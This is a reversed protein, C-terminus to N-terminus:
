GEFGLRKAYDGGIKDAIKRLDRLAADCYDTLAAYVLSVFPDSSGGKAVVRHDRAAQATRKLVYNTQLDFVDEMSDVHIVPMFNTAREMEFYTDGNLGKGVVIVFGIRNRAPRMVSSAWRSMMRYYEDDTLVLIREPDGPDDIDLPDDENDIVPGIGSRWLYLDRLYNESLLEPNSISLLTKPLRTSANNRKSYPWTTDVAKLADLKIVTNPVKTGVRELFLDYRELLDEDTMFIESTDYQIGFLAPDMMRLMSQIRFAPMASHAGKSYEASTIICKLIRVSLMLDELIHMRDRHETYLGPLIRPVCEADVDREHITGILADDEYMRDYRIDTIDNSLHYTLLNSKRCKAVLADILPFMPTYVDEGVEVTNLGELGTDRDIKVYFVEKEELVESLIRDYYANCQNRIGLLDEIEQVNMTVGNPKDPKLKLKDLAAVVEDNVYDYHSIERLADKGARKVGINSFSSLSRCVAYEGTCTEKMGNLGLIHSLSFRAHILLQRIPKDSLPTMRNLLYETMALSQLFVPYRDKDELALRGDGQFHAIGDRGNRSQLLTKALMCAWFDMQFTVMAKGVDDVHVFHSEDDIEIRGRKGTKLTKLSYSM